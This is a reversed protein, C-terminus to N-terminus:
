ARSADDNDTNPKVRMPEERDIMLSAWQPEVSDKLFNRRSPADTETNPLRCQPLESDNRAMERIPEDNDM